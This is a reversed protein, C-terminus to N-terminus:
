FLIIETGNKIDTERVLIDKEYIRGTNRNCLSSNYRIPYIKSIDHIMKCLLESIEGITKNIPIFMEYEEEIEPVFLKILVKFEM